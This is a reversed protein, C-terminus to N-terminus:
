ILSLNDICDEIIQMKQQIVSIVLKVDAFKFTDDCYYCAYELCKLIALIQLTEEFSKYHIDAVRKKIKKIKRNM